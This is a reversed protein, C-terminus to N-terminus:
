AGDDEGVAPPQVLARLRCIACDRESCYAPMVHRKVVERAVLEIEAARYGQRHRILHAYVDGSVVPPYLRDLRKRAQEAHTLRPALNTITGCTSCRGDDSM